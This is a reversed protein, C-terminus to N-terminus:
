TLMKSYIRYTKDLESGSAELIGRMATNTELIWSMECHTVGKALCAQRCRDIMSFAIAAGTRTNQFQKRIGMLPVRVSGISTFQIRYLLKLWNFPLLRGQLDATVQNLNPIVVIFGVV